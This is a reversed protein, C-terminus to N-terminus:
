GCADGNATGAADQIQFGAAQLLASTEAVAEADRGSIRARGQPDIRLQVVHSNPLISRLEDSQSAAAHLSLVLKQCAVDRLRELIGADAPGGIILIDAEWCAVRSCAQVEVAAEPYRASIAAVLSEARGADADSLLQRYGPRALGQALERSGTESVGM